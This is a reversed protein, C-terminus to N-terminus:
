TLGSLELAHRYFDNGARLEAPGGSAVLRGGEIVLLRDCGELTSMRHAIIVVITDGRLDTLTQRILAESNVDLASTPEDLILLEPRGALARAISLRQRQGGSLQSGREGLHAEFGGPLAEIDALVHAQEAAARLDEDSVDTRFFRINEAVTGTFLLADQAVFAVRDSWWARDIDRLDVDGVTVSGATPDRVGLLLQVVTTKGAGSPGIVGITEGADIRFSVGDLVARDGDYSFSVSRAEIPALGSPVLSGGSAVAADYTALTVDLRELFPLSQFMTGSAVQLQQGYTLSRLLVLMVAGLSSLDGEGAVGALALGGLIALYAMSTYIVPLASRLMEARRRAQVEGDMLDDVRAAFRDKVGYTQMELGLAGLESVASAFELQADAASRSRVRIRRRVPALIVALVLLAVIVLVTAAPDVLVAGGVLALLSLSAALSTALSTVVGVSENTFATLLQSLRGSPEAQQTAWSARLYAASLRQRLTTRVSAALGTSLKAVLLGLLLRAAVLVAAAGVATGVSVEWGAIVSTADDGEAVALGVRTIVVLFAAEAAGGAFASLALGALRTRHPRVM